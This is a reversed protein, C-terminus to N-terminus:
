VETFRVKFEFLGSPGHLLLYFPGQCKRFDFLYSSNKLAKYKVEHIEQCVQQGDFYANKLESVILRM